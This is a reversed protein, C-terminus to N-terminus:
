TGSRAAGAAAPPERRLELEITFTTGRGPESTVQITGGHLEVLRQAIPLGLGTGEGEPKTTFFPDFIHAQVEPTMGVGTDSVRVACRGAATRELAVRLEGGRPMAQIGNILVNLLAQAFLQPDGWTSCEVADLDTVVRVRNREAALRVLDVAERVVAAVELPAPAPPRTRALLLLKEMVGSAARVEKSIAAFDERVRPEADKLRRALLDAYGKITHLHNGIQHALGATLTGISALRESRQMQEDLRRTASTDEAVVVMAGPAAAGVVPALRVRLYRPAGGEGPRRTEAHVMVVEHLSRARQMAAEFAGGDRVLEALSASSTVEDGFFERAAANAGSVRGNAHVLLIADRASELIAQREGATRALDATVVEVQHRLAANLERVRAREAALDRSIDVLRDQVVGIEGEARGAPPLQYGGVGLSRLDGALRVLPRTLRGTVWLTLGMGVAMWFLASLVASVMLERLRATPESSSFACLLFGRPKDGRMVPTAVVFELPGATLGFLTRPAVRLRLQVIRRIEQPSPKEGIWTLVEGERSVLALTHVDLDHGVKGAYPALEPVREDTWLPAVAGALSVLILRAKLTIEEQATVAESSLAQFTQGLVVIAVVVGTLVALKVRISIDRLAGLM